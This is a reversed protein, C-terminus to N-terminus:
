RRPAKGSTTEEDNLMAYYHEKVDLIFRKWEAPDIFPNNAPAPVRAKAKDITHNQVTHNGLTIDVPVNELLNLTNLFEGRSHDNHYKGIFEGTLTNLGAGGFLGCRYGRNNESVDFFYSVCGDSHGPTALVDISVGGLTLKEGGELIRDPKFPFCYTTHSGQALTLEPRKIFNEADRKGLYTVCGSIEKIFDTCGFHDFHGHTHLLMKIDEPNFGLSWISHILLNATTPYGSDILILGETTSILHAGVDADGVFYLDGAIRFPPVWFRWPYRYFDERDKLPFPYEREGLKSLPTFNAM